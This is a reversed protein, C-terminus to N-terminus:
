VPSGLYDGPLLSHYASTPEAVEQFSAKRQHVRYTARSRTTERESHVSKRLQKLRQPCSTFTVWHCRQRCLRDHRMIHVHRSLPVSDSGAGRGGGGGGGCVRPRHKSACLQLVTDLGKAHCQSYLHICDGHMMPKDVVIIFVTELEHHALCTCSLDRRELATMMLKSMGSGLLAGINADSWMLSQRQHLNMVIM